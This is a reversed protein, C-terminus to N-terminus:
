DSWGSYKECIKNVKVGKESDAFKALDGKFDDPTENWVCTCFAQAKNQGPIPSKETGGEYVKNSRVVCQTYQVVDDAPVKNYQSQAWGAVAVTLSLAAAISLILRNM